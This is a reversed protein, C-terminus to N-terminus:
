PALLSMSLLSAKDFPNETPNDGQGVKTALTRNSIEPSPHGEPTRASPWRKPSSPENNRVIPSRNLVCSPFVKWEDQGIKLPGVDRLSEFAM